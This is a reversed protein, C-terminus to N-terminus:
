RQGNGLGGMMFRVLAETVEAPTACRRLDWRRLAVITPLFTLINATLRANAVPRGGAAGAEKVIAAFDEIFEHVRGLVSHLAKPPLSHSEHYMLLVDDQRADMIGILARIAAELRARPAQHAAVVGVLAAQYAAVLEDCILFLIDEKTRVYNYLTGQTMRAARGIDRVTARHFGKDHFVKRAAAVIEARRREVLSRDKVRAVVRNARPGNVSRKSLM